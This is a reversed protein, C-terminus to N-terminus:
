PSRSCGPMSGRGAGARRTSRRSPWPRARQIFALYQDALALISIRRLDVKQDRALTLLVDIPGEYGDLDLLLADEPDIIRERSDEEFSEDSV